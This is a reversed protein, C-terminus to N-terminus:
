PLIGKLHKLREMLKANETDLLDNEVLLILQNVYFLQEMGGLQDNAEHQRKTLRKGAKHRITRKIAVTVKVGGEEVNAMKTSKVLEVRDTTIALALAIQDDSIKLRSSVLICHAKDYSCLHRGHNANLRMAELFMEKESGFRKFACPLEAGEGYLKMHKLVRHFGDVVRKSKSDAVVPPFEVGAREAECMEALHQSDVQTRPYLNYDLVLSAAKVVQM